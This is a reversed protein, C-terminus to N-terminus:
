FGSIPKQELTINRSKWKKNDVAFRVIEIAKIAIFPDISAHSIKHHLLGDVDFCIMWMHLIQACAEMPVDHLDGCAAVIGCEEKMYLMNALNSGTPAFLIKISAYCKVCEELLTHLYPIVYVNNYRQKCIHTFNEFNELHRHRKEPRNYLGLFFPEIKDAEYKKRIKQHIWPLGCIINGHILEPNFVTHLREAFVFENKRPFLLQNPYFDLAYLIQIYMPTPDIIILKSVKRIEEPIFFLSAVTDFLFHAFVSCWQNNCCIVDKYRGIVPGNSVVYHIMSSFVDTTYNMIINESGFACSPTVYVNPIVAYTANDRNLSSMIFCVLSKSTIERTRLLYKSNEKENTPIITQNHFSAM